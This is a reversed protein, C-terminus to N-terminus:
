WKMDMENDYVTEGPFPGPPKACTGAASLVLWKLRPTVHLDAPAPM